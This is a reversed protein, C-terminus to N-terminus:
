MKMTVKTIPQMRGRNDEKQANRAEVVTFQGMPSQTPRLMIVQNVEVIDVGENLIDRLFIYDKEYEYFGAGVLGMTM